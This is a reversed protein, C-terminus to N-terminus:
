AKCDVVWEQPVNPPLQLGLEAMAALFKARFVKALAKHSLLYGDGKTGKRLARWLGKTADLAAAPMAVHVVRAM